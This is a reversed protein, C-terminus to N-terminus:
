STLPVWLALWVSRIPGCRAQRPAIHLLHESVGLGLRLLGALSRQGATGTPTGMQLLRSWSIVACATPLFTVGLTLTGVRLWVRDLEEGGSGGVRTSLVVLKTVSGTSAFGFPRYCDGCGM